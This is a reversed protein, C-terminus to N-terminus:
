WHGQGLLSNYDVNIEGFSGGLGSHIDLGPEWPPAGKYQTGTCMLGQTYGGLTAITWNSVTQSGMSQLMGPKWTRWWVGSSAWVWTWGTPSATWGDWGRDDGKGGAKLREWCWPRKLHTSDECWTALTNSNWGWCRVKWNFIWSQNGKPNIPKIEKSDLPSELTKELVVAWFCWNKPEWGEKHALKWM